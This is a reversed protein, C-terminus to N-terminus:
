RRGLGFIRFRRFRGTATPPSAPRFQREEPPAGEPPFDLSDQLTNVEDISLNPFPLDGSQRWGSVREEAEDGKESDVGRDRAMYLTQAPYAFDTGAKAVLEMMRLIIDEQIALFESYDVTKIYAFIEYEIRNESIGLLRARAPDKLVRPHAILLRRIETLIYRLQDLGTEPRLAFTRRMLISDRRTFNEIDSSMFDSNPITILTRELTRVVTARLGVHEISGIRGNFRGFDNVDVPRDIFLIFASIVNELTSRAAFAIAIGSIGLGAVAAGYPIRLAEAFLLVSACIILVKVVGVLLTALFEGRPTILGANSVVNRFRDVLWFSLPVSGVIITLVALSKITGGFESPLGLVAFGIYNIVGFVLLRVGWIALYASNSIQSSRQLLRQPLLLILGTLISALVAIIILALLSLWQWAELPGIPQLWEPTLGSIWARIRFYLADSHADYPLIRTTQPLNETAAYLSRITRITEPTFKWRVGDDTETPALVIDGAPHVFYIFPERSSPDNPIEQFVVEGIRAIVENLYEAVLVSQRDRVVPPMESLDLAAIATDQMAPGARMADIFSEMAARPTSGDFHGRTHAASPTQASIEALLSKVEAAPPAIMFWDQNVQRFQLSLTRGDYRTLTIEAESGEPAESEFIHPDVTFQDLLLALPALERGHNERGGGPFILLSLLDDQYELRGSQLAEAAILFTRLTEAPSSQFARLARDHGPLIRSGTWWQKNGLRGIFSKGDESLVFEFSGSAKPTSWTGTLRDGEVNGELRGRYAPYRGTVHNETQQMYVRAGGDFWRSDWAGTWDPSAALTTVSFGHLLFLGIGLLVLRIILLPSQTMGRM